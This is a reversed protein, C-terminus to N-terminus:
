LHKGIHGILIKGNEIEPKGEHFYIRHFYFESNGSNDSQSLKLHPECYIMEERNSVSNLFSFSLEKKRQINGENSAPEDFSCLSSFKKLTKVRDYPNTKCEEFKDNLCSLYYVIKKSFDQLISSISDEVRAHIFLRPFYKECEAKFHRPSKPYLGLFYRHFSIWNNKNYVSYINEVGDIEHLGILGYVKDSSHNKLQEIFDQKSIETVESKDIINRLFQVIDRDFQKGGQGYL